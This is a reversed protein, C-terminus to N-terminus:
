KDTKESCADRKEDAKERGERAATRVPMKTTAAQNKPVGTGLPGDRPLRKQRKTGQIERFFQM